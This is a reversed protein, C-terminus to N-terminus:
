ASALHWRWADACMAEIGRQAQWGLVTRALTVDAWLAAIDGERRKGIEYPVGRGSVREFTGLLELVSTGRGTGVNLTTVGGPNEGHVLAIAAVHALALDQVHVYDRVGTGDPTPYDGGHVLVPGGQGAAARALRPMLNDPEGAPSEGLLGSRHAGVPNFFRLSVAAFGPWASAADAVAREMEQKTRGYVSTPQLPSDERVPVEAANGYVAASSSFVLRCVGEARMAALLAITGGVNNDHYEAPRRASEAVSKKAALHLVADIGALATRLRAEDRVDGEVIDFPSGAIAAVRRLADRTGASFDDYVRVSHGAQLLAVCLHSGLYGAGGSVLLNM